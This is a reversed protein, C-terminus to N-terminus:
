CGPSSLSGRTTPMRWPQMQIWRVQQALHLTSACSFYCETLVPSLTPETRMRYPHSYLTREQSCKDHDYAHALLALSFSIPSLHHKKSPNVHSGYLQAHKQLAAHGELSHLGCNDVDAHRAGEYVFLRRTFRQWIATVDLLVPGGQQTCSHPRALSFTRLSTSSSAAVVDVSSSRALKLASSVAITIHLRPLHACIVQVRQM